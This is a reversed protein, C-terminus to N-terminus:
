CVYHRKLRELEKTAVGEYLYCQKEQEDDPYQLYTDSGVIKAEKIGYFEMFGIITRFNYDGGCYNWRHDDQGWRKSFSIVIGM